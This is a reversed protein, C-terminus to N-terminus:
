VRIDFRALPQAELPEVRVRDVRAPRPGQRLWDVFQEIRSESAQAVGEVKGDARNRVWGAIGLNGAAERTAYRFGVGQVRGSVTFQVTKMM